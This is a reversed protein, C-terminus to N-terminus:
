SFALGRKGSPASAQPAKSAVVIAVLADDIPDVTQVGFCSQNSWRVQGSVWTGEIQFAIHGDEVPPDTQAIAVGFRNIDLIRSSMVGAGTDEAQDLMRNLGTAAQRRVVTPHACAHRPAKRQNALWLAKRVWSRLAWALLGLPLLALPLVMLSSSSPPPRRSAETRARSVAEEFTVADDVISNVPSRFTATEFEYGPDTYEDVAHAENISACQSPASSLRFRALGVSFRTGQALTAVTDLDGEQAAQAMADATGLTYDIWGYLTFPFESRLIPTIHGTDVDSLAAYLTDGHGALRSPDRAAQTANVAEVVRQLSSLDECQAHAAPASAFVASVSALLAILFRHTM